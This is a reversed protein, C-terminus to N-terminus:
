QSGFGYDGGAYTTMNMDKNGGAPGQQEGVKKEFFRLFRVQIKNKLGDLAM